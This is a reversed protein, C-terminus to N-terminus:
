AGSAPALSERRAAPLAKRKRLDLFLEVWYYISWIGLLSTTLLHLALLLQSTGPPVLFALLSPLLVILYTVMLGGLIGRRNGSVLERSRTLPNGAEELPDLAALLGVFSYQLLKHLGLGVLLTCALYLPVGSWGTLWGLMAAIVIPAGGIFGALGNYFLVRPTSMIVRPLCRLISSDKGSKRAHLVRLATTHIISYALVQSVAEVPASVSRTVLAGVLPAAILLLSAEWDRALQRAALPLGRFPSLVTVSPVAAPVTPIERDVVLMPAGGEVRGGEGSAPRFSQGACGFTACTIIFEACDAHYPSECAECSVFPGEVPCRCVSCTAPAHDRSAEEPRSEAESRPEVRPAVLRLSLSTM